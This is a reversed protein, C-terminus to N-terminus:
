ATAKRRYKAPILTPASPEIMRAHDKRIDVAIGQANLWARINHEVTSNRIGSDSQALLSVECVVEAEKALLKLVHKTVEELNEPTVRMCIQVRKLLAASGRIQTDEPSPFNRGLFNQVRLRRRLLDVWIKPGTIHAQRDAFQIHIGRSFLLFCFGRRTGVADVSPRTVDYGMEALVRRANGLFTAPQHVAMHITEKGFHFVLVFVWAILTCVTGLFLNESFPTGRFFGVLWIIVFFSAGGAAVTALAWLLLRLSSKLYNCQAMAAEVKCFM